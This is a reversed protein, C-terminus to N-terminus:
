AVVQYYITGLLCGQTRQILDAQWPLAGVHCCITGQLRCCFVCEVSRPTNAVTFDCLGITHHWYTTSNNWAAWMKGEINLVSQGLVWINWIQKLPFIFLFMPPSHFLHFFISIVYDSLCSFSCSAKKKEKENEKRKETQASARVYGYQNVPSLLVSLWKSRNACKFCCNKIM